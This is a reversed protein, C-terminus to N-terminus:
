LSFDKPFGLRLEDIIGGIGVCRPEFISKSLNSSLMRLHVDGGECRRVVDNIPLNHRPARMLLKAQTIYDKFCHRKTFKYKIHDPM